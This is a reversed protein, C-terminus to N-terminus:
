SARRLRARKADDVPFGREAWDDFSERSVRWTGRACAQVGVLLRRRLADTVSRPHRGSEAAVQRTTMWQGSM